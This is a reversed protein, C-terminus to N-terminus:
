AILKLLASMPRVTSTRFPSLLAEALQRAQTCPQIVGSAYRADLYAQLSGWSRPMDQDQAGLAIAVGAAEACYVDRESDTLPRVLQDYVRLISDILTAHVWQLLAPDEASYHTGAPFPGSPSPLGG